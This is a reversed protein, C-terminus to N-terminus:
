NERERDEQEAFAPFNAFIEFPRRQPETRQVYLRVNGAERTIKKLVTGTASITPLQDAFDRRADDLPKSEILTRINELTSTLM